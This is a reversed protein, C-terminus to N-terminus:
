TTTFKRSSLTFFFQHAPLARTFKGSTFLYKGKESLDMTFKWFKLLIFNQFKIAFSIM